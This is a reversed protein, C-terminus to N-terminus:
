TKKKKIYFHTKKGVGRSKLFVKKVAMLNDCVVARIEKLFMSKHFFFFFFSSSSSSLLEKKSASFGFFVL